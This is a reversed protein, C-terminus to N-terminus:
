GSRKDDERAVEDWPGHESITFADAMGLGDELEEVLELLDGIDQWAHALFIADPPWPTAAREFGAQHVIVKRAADVLSGAWLGYPGPSAAARRARIAELDAM